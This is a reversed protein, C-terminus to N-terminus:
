ILLWWRLKNECFRAYEDIIIFIPKFLYYKDPYLKKVSKADTAKELDKSYLLQDRKHYEETIEKLQGLFDDDTRGLYVDKLGNFPFFDKIKTSTVYLKM